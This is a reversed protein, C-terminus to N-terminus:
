GFTFSYAKVGPTFRLTLIGTEDSRSGELTYLRDQSVDVPALPHGDLSVNVRGRGSLVIYVHKGQFHLTILADAGAVAAEGEVTWTGSYALSNLPVSRTPPYDNPKNDAIAAGVYRAPDLRVYGLYAEATQPETPTENPVSSEPAAAVGLLQRIETEMAAYDGEGATMARIRGQQDILYDAPWYQNGYANWTAFNNDQVVPYTIGLRKIAAAVNSAVHEFAFEPSHVGIIVLGYRAYTKYWAELHPITRLCNICSYTWFDVLVVKGRLETLKLPKTNFWQGGATIPPASPALIPLTSAGPGAQAVPTTATPAQQLIKRTAEVTRPAHIIVATDEIHSELAPTYGPLRTQFRGDLNFTVALTAFVIVVGSALRLQQGHLRVRRALSRGRCAILTM